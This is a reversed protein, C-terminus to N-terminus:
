NKDNRSALFLNEIRKLVENSKEVAETTGVSDFDNLVLDSYRQLYEYM